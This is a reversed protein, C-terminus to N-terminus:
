ETGAPGTGDAWRRRVADVVRAATSPRDREERLLGSWADGFRDVLAWAGGRVRPDPSRSVALGFERGPVVSRAAALAAARTGARATGDTRGRTSRTLRLPLGPWLRALETRTAPSASLGALGVALPRRRAGEADIQGSRMRRSALPLHDPGRVLPVLVLKLPPLGRRAREANVSRAGPATEVSAVLLDYGPEVSRGWGENLPVIWWARGPYHSRLYAALRARRAAYPAIRTGLAKPHARLYRATTLGIGVRDAARFATSLLERHGAHLGDFTGGLVAVIPRGGPTRPRRRAM